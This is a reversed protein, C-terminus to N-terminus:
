SGYARPQTMCRRWKLCIWDSSSRSESSAFCRRASALSSGGPAALSSIIRLARCASVAKWMFSHSVDGPSRGGSYFTLGGRETLVPANAVAAGRDVTRRRDLRSRPDDPSGIVPTVTRTDVERWGRGRPSPNWVFVRSGEVRSVIAVHGGGRRDTVAVAGPVPWPIRVGWSDFSHALASGTGRIGREALAANVNLACILRGAIYRVPRSIAHGFSAATDRHTIEETALFSSKHRHKNPRLNIEKSSKRPTYVKQAVGFGGMAKVIREGRVSPSVGECPMTVNCDPHALYTRHRQRAEANSAACVLALAALIVTRIM